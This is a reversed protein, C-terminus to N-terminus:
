QSHRLSVLMGPSASSGDDIAAVGCGALAARFREYTAVSRIEGRECRACFDLAVREVARLRALEAVLAAPLDDASRIPEQDV